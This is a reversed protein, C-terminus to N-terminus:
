YNFNGVFFDFVLDMYIIIVCYGICGLCFKGM